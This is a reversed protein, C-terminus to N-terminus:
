QDESGDIQLLEIAKAIGRAYGRAEWLNALTETSAYPKAFMARAHEEAALARGLEERLVPASDANPQGTM